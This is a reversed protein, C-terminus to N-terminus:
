VLNIESLLTIVGNLNFEKTDYLNMGLASTGYRYKVWIKLPIVSKLKGNEELIQIDGNKWVNTQINDDELIKDEYILGNLSKNTQSQIDKVALSIPFSIYSSTIPYTLPAAENPEPKMLEIKQTTSCSQFFLSIVLTCILLVISKM